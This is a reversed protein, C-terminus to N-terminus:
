AAVALHARQGTLVVELHEPKVCLKEGCNPRVRSGEPLPGVFVLYSVRAAGQNFGGYCVQPSGSRMTSGTWIWHEAGENIRNLFRDEETDGEVFTPIGAESLTYERIPIDARFDGYRRWRYSHGGCIDKDGRGCV